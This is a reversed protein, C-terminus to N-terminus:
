VGIRNEWSTCCNVWISLPGLMYLLESM